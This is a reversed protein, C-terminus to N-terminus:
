EMQRVFCSGPVNTRWIHIYTTVKMAMSNKFIATNELLGRFFPLVAANSLDSEKLSKRPTSIYYYHHFALVSMVRPFPLSGM